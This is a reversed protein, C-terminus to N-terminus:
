LSWNNKKRFAEVQKWLEKQSIDPNKEKLEKILDNIMQLKTYAYNSDMDLRVM